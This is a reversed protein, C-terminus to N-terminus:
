ITIDKDMALWQEYHVLRHCKCCLVDCKDIEADIKKKSAWSWAMKLVAWDKAKPDRHHFDLFMVESEWCRSCPNHALYDRVYAVQKKYRKSFRIKECDKCYYNHGRKNKVNKYYETVPKDKHCQPCVYHTENTSPHKIKAM